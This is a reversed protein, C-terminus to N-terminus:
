PTVPDPVFDHEGKFSLAEVCLRYKVGPELPDPQVGKRAAHMGGIPMGYNFDKIPVSNSDSILCWIPTAFKNTEIASVPVVKLSTLKLERNFGFHIPDITSNDPSKRRFFAIRAPRSRHYIQINEKAFWDKNLYLSFGGLVVALAIMLWIKKTM